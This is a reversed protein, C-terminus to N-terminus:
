LYFVEKHLNDTHKSDAYLACFQAEVFPWDTIPTFCLTHPPARLSFFTPISFFLLFLHIIGIFTMFM